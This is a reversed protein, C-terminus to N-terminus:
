HVYELSPGELFEKRKFASTKPETASIPVISETLVGEGQFLSRNRVMLRSFDRTGYIGDRIPQVFPEWLRKCVNRFSAIDRAAGKGISDWVAGCFRSWLWADDEESETDVAPSPSSGPSSRAFIRLPCRSAITLSESRDYPPFHIHPVGTARLFYPRPATVIAIITLNSAKFIM